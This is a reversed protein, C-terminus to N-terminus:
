FYNVTLTFQGAYSGAMQNAGVNLQGGVRFTHPGTGTFFRWGTGGEVQLATTMSAGGGARVLTPSASIQVNLALGLSPAGIFTARAPTGGSAVAGGTTTRAGSAPNIRVTGAAAGASISGFDLDSTKVLTLPQVTTVRAQGSTAGAFAIGPLGALVLLLSARLVFGLVSELAQNRRIYPLPLLSVTRM